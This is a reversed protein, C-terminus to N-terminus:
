TVDRTRRVTSGPPSRTMVSCSAPTRDALTPTQTPTPERSSVGVSCPQECKRSCRSKLPVRLRLAISMETSSSATPPSNLAKVALSYVQKWARTSSSSRGSATSTRPSM